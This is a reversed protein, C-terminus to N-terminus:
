FEVGFGRYSGSFRVYRHKVESVRAMPPGQNIWKLLAQLDQVRGEALVEVSGDSMNRAYGSLGLRRAREVTSYRFGVGQVMGYVRAYLCKQPTGNM